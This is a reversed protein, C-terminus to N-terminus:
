LASSSIQGAISEMRCYHKNVILTMLDECEGVGVPHVPPECHGCICVDEDTGSIGTFSEVWSVQLVEKYPVTGDRRFESDEDGAVMVADEVSVRDPGAVENRATDDKQFATANFIVAYLEIADRGAREEFLRDGQWVVDVEENGVARRIAMEVAVRAVLVQVESDCTGSWFVVDEAM